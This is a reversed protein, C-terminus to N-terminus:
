NFRKLLKDNAMSLEWIRDIKKNRFKMITIQKRKQIKGSKTVVTVLCRVVIKNGSIIFDNYNYSINKVADKLSTVRRILDNTDMPKNFNLYIEAHKTFYNPVSQADLKTFVQHFMQKSLTIKNINEKKSYLDNAYISATLFMIILFLINKM